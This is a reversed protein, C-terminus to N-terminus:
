IIQCRDTITNGSIFSNGQTRMVLSESKQKPCFSVDMLLKDQGMAKPEAESPSCEDLRVAKIILPRMDPSSFIMHRKFVAGSGPANTALVASWPCVREANVTHKHNLIVQRPTSSGTQTGM